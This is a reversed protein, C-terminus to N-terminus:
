RHAAATVVQAAQLFIHDNPTQNWGTGTLGVMILPPAFAGVFEDAHAHWIPWRLLCRRALAFRYQRLFRTGVTRSLKLQPQSVQERGRTGLPMLWSLTQCAELRQIM